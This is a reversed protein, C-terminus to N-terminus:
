VGTPDLSAGHLLSGCYFILPDGENHSVRLVRGVVITHDGAEHRAYMECEFRAHYNNLLPLGHLGTELRVNAFRDIDRASFQHCLESQGAELVHVAFHNAACMVTYNRSNKAISWQVLPPDLSLSTFSNCTMGIPMSGNGSTTVVTVGTAFRGLARRFDKSDFPVPTMIM